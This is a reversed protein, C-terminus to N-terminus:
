PPDHFWFLPRPHSPSGELFDSSARNGDVRSGSFKEVGLIERSQLLARRLAGPQAFVADIARERKGATHLTDKNLNPHPHFSRLTSISTPLHGLPSQGGRRPRM